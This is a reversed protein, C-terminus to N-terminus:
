VGAAMRPWLAGRLVLCALTSQALALAAAYGIATPALGAPALTVTTAILLATTAVTATLEVGARDHARLWQAAATWLVGPIAALCLIAVLDAVDAWDGGFVLPVYWPALAAQILVLPVVGGMGLALAEIAARRRGAGPAARCFHPYVVIAFATAFSTAIGFGANFAFFWVGLAEAGLVAGIILKDAQQRVANVLEVGLVQAGFRLFPRLPARGAAPDPRWPRLRRMGILWVPASLAKPLVAALPGAWVLLLGATALNAGAVQAGSIRATAAVKGERMALFCSVLGGPMFLYEVGLVVIMMAVLPPAGLAWLAAGVGAQLLFLGGCWLRFLRHATACVAELEAEPAAIIRQGVGNQTLAKLIESVALATAVLGIEAASLSRAMAIVVLLRTVKGAAESAGYAVLGGLLARIDGGARIM